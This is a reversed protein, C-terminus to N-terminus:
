HVPFLRYAVAESHEVRVGDGKGGEVVPRVTRATTPQNVHFALEGVVNVSCAAIGFMFFHIADMVFGVVVSAALCGQRDPRIANTKDPFAIYHFKEGIARRVRDFVFVAVLALPQVVVELEGRLRHAQFVHESARYGFARDKVGATMPPPFDDDRRLQPCPYDIGRVRDARHEGRAHQGWWDVVGSAPFTGQFFDALRFGDGILGPLSLLLVSQEVRLCSNCVM